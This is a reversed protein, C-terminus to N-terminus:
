SKRKIGRRKTRSGSTGATAQDQKSSDSGDGDSGTGPKPLSEVLAILLLGFVVAVVYFRGIKM